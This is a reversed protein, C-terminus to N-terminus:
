ILTRRQWNDDYKKEVNDIKSLLRRRRQGLQRKNLLGKEYGDKLELIAKEIQEVEEKEEPSCNEWLKEKLKTM